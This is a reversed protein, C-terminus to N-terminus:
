MGALHLIKGYQFSMGLPNTGTKGGASRPRLYVPSLNPGLEFNPKLFSNCIKLKGGGLGTYDEGRSSMIEPEIVKGKGM